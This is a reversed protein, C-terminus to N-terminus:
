IALLRLGRGQTGPYRSSEMPPLIFIMTSDTFTDGEELQQTPLIPFLFLDRPPEYHSLKKRQKQGGQGTKAPGRWLDILMCVTYSM